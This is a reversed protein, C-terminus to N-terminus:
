GLRLGVVIALSERTFEDIVTLMRFKKGNALRDEVFDYSWVHNRHTPRLRVCSGDALWLHKRKRQKRPVKLGEERWIRAVRKHNVKWEATRLMAKVMRYGYAGFRHAVGVVAERLSEEDPKRRPVYRYTSRPIQLVSCARHETVDCIFRIDNVLQKRKV